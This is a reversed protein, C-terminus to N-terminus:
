RKAESGGASRARREAGTLLRRSNGQPNSARALVFAFLFVAPHRDTQKTRTNIVSKAADAQELM